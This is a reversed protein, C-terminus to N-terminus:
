AAESIKRPGSASPAPVLRPIDEAIDAVDVFGHREAYPLAADMLIQMQEKKRELQALALDIEKKM